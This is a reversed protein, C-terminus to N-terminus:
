DTGAIYIVQLVTLFCDLVHIYQWLFIWYQLFSELYNEPLIYAYIEQFKTNM